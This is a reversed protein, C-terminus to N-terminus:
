RKWCNFICTPLQLDTHSLRTLFSLITFVCYWLHVSKGRTDWKWCCFSIVKLFTCLARRGYKAIISSENFVEKSYDLRYSFPWLFFFFFFSLFVNAEANKNSNILTTPTTYCYPTEMSDTKKTPTREETHPVLPLIALHSVLFAAITYPCINWTPRLKTCICIRYQSSCIGWQALLRTPIGPLDGLFYRHQLLAFPWFEQYCLLM